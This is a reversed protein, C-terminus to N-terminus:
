LKGLYDMKGLPAGKHRLIAYATTVHFFFNPLAFDLLYGQGVFNLEYPGAKFSIKRRESGDIDAPGVTQMFAVTKVIREQLEAFTTETDAFSPVDRGALRAICGKATDSALQIQRPLPLMDPALRGDLLERADVGRATADALAKDLITSLNAFARTFVPVSAQYMSLSAAIVTTTSTM